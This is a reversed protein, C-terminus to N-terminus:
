LNEQHIDEILAQMHSNHAQLIAHNMVQCKELSRNPFIPFKLWKLTEEGGSVYSVIALLTTDGGLTQAM